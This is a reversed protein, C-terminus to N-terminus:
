GGGQDYMVDAMAQRDAGSFDAWSQIRPDNCTPSVWYNFVADIVKQYDKSFDLDKEVLAQVAPNCKVVEAM